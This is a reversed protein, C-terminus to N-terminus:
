QYGAKHLLELFIAAPLIALWEERNKRHMVVPIKPNSIAKGVGADRKAQAMWKYPNGVEVRKVEFHFDKLAESVVDPSDGGGHFQQGRRGDYGHQRLLAAFELEGTKGKTRSNITM